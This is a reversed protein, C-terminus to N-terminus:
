AAAGRLRTVLLNEPLEVPFSVRIIFRKRRNGRGRARKPRGAVELGAELEIRLSDYDRVQDLVVPYRQHERLRVECEWSHLERTRTTEVWAGDLDAHLRGLRELILTIAGRRDPNRGKGDSSSFTLWAQRPEASVGYAAALLTGNPSIPGSEQVLPM